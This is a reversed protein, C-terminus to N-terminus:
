QLRPPLRRPAGRASSQVVDFPVVTKAVALTEKVVADDSFPDGAVLRVVRLGNRAETLAACTQVLTLCTTRSLRFNRRSRPAQMCAPWVWPRM